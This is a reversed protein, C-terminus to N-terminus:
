EPHEDTAVEVREEAETVLVADVRKPETLAGREMAIRAETLWTEILRLREAPVFALYPPPATSAGQQVAAAAGALNLIMAAAKLAVPDRDSDSRGCHECPEAQRLARYVVELAPYRMGAIFEDVEQLALPTKGGHVACVMQMVMPAKGCRKGDRNTAICQRHGLFRRANPSLGHRNM